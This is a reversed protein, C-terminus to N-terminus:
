GNDIRYYRAIVQQLVLRAFAYADREVPQAEYGIPDNSPYTYHRFNEKWAAIEQQRHDAPISEPHRIAHAQYVHRSEHLAVRLAGDYDMKALESESVIIRERPGLFPVWYTVHRAAEGPKLQGFRVDAPKFGYVRAVERHIERVVELSEPSSMYEWDESMQQERAALWEVLRPLEPEKGITEAYAKLGDSQAEKGEGQGTDALQAFLHDTVAEPPVFQALEQESRHSVQVEAQRQFLGPAIEQAPGPGGEKPTEQSSSPIVENM